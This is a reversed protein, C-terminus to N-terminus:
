KGLFLIMYAKVIEVLTKTRHKLCRNKEKTKKKLWMMWDQTALNGVAVSEHEPARGWKKMGFLSYEFLFRRIICIIQAQLVYYRKLLTVRSQITVPLM